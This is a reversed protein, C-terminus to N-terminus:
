QSKKKAHREWALNVLVRAMEDRRDLRSIMVSTM